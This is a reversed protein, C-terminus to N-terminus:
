VASRECDSALWRGVDRKPAAWLPLGSRSGAACSRLCRRAAARRHKSTAPCAACCCAGSRHHWAFRRWRSQSGVHRSGRLVPPRVLSCRRVGDQGRSDSHRHTIASRDAAREKPGRLATHSSGAFMRTEDDLERGVHKLVILGSMSGDRRPPMPSRVEASSSLRAKGPGVLIAVRVDSDEVAGVWRVMRPSSPAELQGAAQTSLDLRETGDACAAFVLAFSFVTRFCTSAKTRAASATRRQMDRSRLFPQNCLNHRRTGFCLQSQFAPLTVLM